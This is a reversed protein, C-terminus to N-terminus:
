AASAANGRNEEQANRGLAMLAATMVLYTTIFVNRGFITETVGFQMFGVVLIMLAYGLDRTAPGHRILRLAVWLPSAFIALLVLLGLTGCEVMTFLYTNHPQSHRRKTKYPKGSAVLGDVLHEYREPGAGIIPNQRFIEWAAQWGVMRASVSNFKQSGLAFARTQSVAADVRKKVNTEPYQYAAVAVLCCGAVLALRIGTKLYDALYFILILILAPMAIWGGRSGSFMSGTIGLILAAVPILFYVGRKPLLWGLSPVGLFAFILALNGFVIPNYAARVRAPGSPDILMGLTYMGSLAAGSLVGAWLIKPSINGYRFLAYIPFIALWRFEHDILKIQIEPIGGLARNIVLSLFHVLFYAAFTGMVWKEPLTLDPRRNPDFVVLVGMCALLLLITSSSHTILNAFSPFLILLWSATIALRGKFGLNEWYGMCSGSWAEEDLIEKVQIPKNKVNVEIQPM